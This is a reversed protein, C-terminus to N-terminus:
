IDYQKVNVNEFITMVIELTVSTCKNARESDNENEYDQQQSLM